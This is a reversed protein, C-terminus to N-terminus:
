PSVSGRTPVSVSYLSPSDPEGYGAGDHTGDDQKAAGAMVPGQEEGGVAVLHVVAGPQGRIAMGLGGFGGTPRGGPATPAVNDKENWVPSGFPKGDFTVVAPAAFLTHGNDPDYRASIRVRTVDPKYAPWPLFLVYSRGWTEDRTQFNRLVEKPFQWREPKAAPQGPPRSSEDILDLTLTGDALAFEMKPPPGFLFLQGAVGPSMQGNKTPDPLYAIQNRWGVAMETAIVKREIKSTLKALPYAGAVMAAPAVPASQPAEAATGGTQIVDGAVPRAMAQPPPLVGPQTVDPKKTGAGKKDSTLCGSGLVLLGVALASLSRVGM